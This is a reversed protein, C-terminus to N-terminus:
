RQLPSNGETGRESLYNFALYLQRSWHTAVAQGALPSVV